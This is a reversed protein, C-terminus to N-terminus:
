KREGKRAEDYLSIAVCLAATAIIGALYGALVTISEQGWWAPSLSLLVATPLATSIMCILEIEQALKTKM